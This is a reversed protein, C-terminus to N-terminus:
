FVQNHTKFIVATMTQGVAKLVNKDIVSLNDAHTHHHDGFLKDEYPMNVIDIMPIGAYRVVFTHDDTIRPRPADIFYEGYGLETALNWIKDVTRPAVDRSIGEKYFRANKAGVMDLLIAYYPSYGPKHLNKAWHQSGLCWSDNDGNDGNDELDFCILDVGIDLSSQSLLRALELLVGVGSGGDDAGDIPKNQDKTDKEAENRTDWHAALCIRKKLEPKYQAIINVGNLTGGKYYPGQVPQEIVTLGFRKFEAVIWQGCKKHAPTNPVRPGFEVQKKVFQFASDANFEPVAIQPVDTKPKEVVPGTKPTRNLFPRLVYLLAAVFLVAILGYAMWPRKANKQM